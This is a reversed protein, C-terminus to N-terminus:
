MSAIVDGLWREYVDISIYGLLPSWNVVLQGGHAAEAIDTVERLRRNSLEALESDSLDYHEDDPSQGDKRLYGDISSEASQTIVRHRLDDDRHIVLQVYDTGWSRLREALRLTPARDQCVGDTILVCLHRRCRDRTNVVERLFPAFKTEGSGIGNARLLEDLDSDGEKGSHPVAGPRRWDALVARASVFWVRWRSTGLKAGLLPLIDMMTKWAFLAKDTVRMSYSVDIGVDVLTDQPDPVYIEKTILKAVLTTLPLEEIGSAWVNAGFPQGSRVVASVSRLWSKLLVYPGGDYRMADAYLREADPDTRWRGLARTKYVNLRRIGDQLGSAKWVLHQIQPTQLGLSPDAITVARNRLFRYKQTLATRLSETMVPYSLLEPISANNLKPWDIVIAGLPLREWPVKRIAPQSGGFDFLDVPEISM